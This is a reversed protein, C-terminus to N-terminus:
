RRILTSSVRSFSGSVTQDTGSVPQQAPQATAPNVATTGFAPRVIPQPALTAPKTATLSTATIGPRVTEEEEKDKKNKKDKEDRDVIGPPQSLPISTPHDSPDVENALCTHGTLTYGAPCPSARRESVELRSADLDSAAADQVPASAAAKGPARRAGYHSGAFASASTLTLLLAALTTKKM